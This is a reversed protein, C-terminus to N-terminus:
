NARERLARLLRCKIQPFAHGNRVSPQVPDVFRDESKGARCFADIEAHGILAGLNEEQREAWVADRVRLHAKKRADALQDAALVDARNRLAFVESSIMSVM